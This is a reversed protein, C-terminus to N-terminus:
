STGPLRLAGHSAAAIQAVLREPLELSSDPVGSFRLRVASVFFRRVKETSIDTWPVLFPAHGPRFPLLIGVRLGQPGAHLTLCGNYSVWGVRGHRWSFSIGEAPSTAPYREALARWGGVMSLFSLVLLWLGAFFM